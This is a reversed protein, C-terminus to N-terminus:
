FHPSESLFKGTGCRILSSVGVEAHKQQGMLLPTLVEATSFSV